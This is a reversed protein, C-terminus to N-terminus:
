SRKQLVQEREFFIRKFSTRPIGFVNCQKTSVSFSIRRAYILWELSPALSGFQGYTEVVGDIPSCGKKGGSLIQIWKIRKHLSVRKGDAFHWEKVMLLPSPQRRNCLLAFYMCSYQKSNRTWQTNNVMLTWIYTHWPVENGYTGQTEHPYEKRVNINELFVIDALWELATM